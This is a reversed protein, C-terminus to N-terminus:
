ARREWLGARLGQAVVEHFPTSSVAKLYLIGRAACFADLRRTFEEVRHRYVAVTANDVIVPSCRDDEVDVVEVVGGFDPSLEEEALVHVLVVEFGRWVLYALSEDCGSPSFGDTIVIALGRRDPLNAYERLSHTFDSAGGPRVAQLMEVIRAAQARGRRPPIVSTLGAGFRAL